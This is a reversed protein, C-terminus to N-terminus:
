ERTLRAMYFGDFKSSDASIKIEEELKFEPNEKIFWDIQNENESPLISCTAYILKGKPQILPAAKSLLKRQTEQYAILQGEDLNWKIEPNRKLTGLGSCPADVLLRDAWKTHKELTSTSTILETKIISVKARKSRRHLERLKNEEVDFAKIEGQNRMLAALHLTKGGAGACLDMVYMGPEVQCFPAILQSNADQIEFYGKQFLQNNGLRRGKSLLLTDPNLDSLTTDINFREKLLQVTKKPSAVLRNVRLAVDAQFNLASAENRWGQKLEKKGLHYLWDPYSHAIAEDSILLDNLESKSQYPPCDLENWNPLTYDHLICWTKILPWPTFDSKEQAAIFYYKRKWRLINFCADYLTKRDRSGWKPHEDICKELVRSARKKEVLIAYLSNAIAEAQNPFIRKM